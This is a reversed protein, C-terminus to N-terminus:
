VFIKGRVFVREEFRGAFANSQRQALGPIGLDVVHDDPGALYSRHGNRSDVLRNRRPFKELVRREHGRDVRALIGRKVQHSEKRVAAHMRPVRVKIREQLHRGLAPDLADEGMDEGVPAVRRRFRALAVDLLQHRLHALDADPADGGDGPPIVGHVAVVPPFADFAGVVRDGV